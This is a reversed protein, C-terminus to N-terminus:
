QPKKEEAKPLTPPTRSHISLRAEGVGLILAAFATSYGENEANESKMWGQLSFSGDPRQWGAVDKQAATIYGRTTKSYTEDDKFEDGLLQMGMCGYFHGYYPFREASIAAPTLKLLFKYGKVM